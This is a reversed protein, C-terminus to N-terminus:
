MCTCTDAACVCFVTLVLLFSHIYSCVYVIVRALVKM